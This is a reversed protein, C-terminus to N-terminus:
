ATSANDSLFSKIEEIYKRDNSLRPVKNQGGLKGKEKMWAHFTGPPIPEIQLRELALGKYRKAEYDSNINQLNRDLRDAFQEITDNDPRPEVFEILWQHGGKQGGEMYVPAATYEAVEVNMAESTKAFAEETNAIMLEEGFANIFQRTRGTIRIKYPNLSLFEVTDGIEYRWLGANTTIYLAYNTGKKVESLPVIDKEPDSSDIPLFEYFCGNDLFLLMGPNHAENQVAFFGESANYVEFYYFDDKPIFDEFQKRYPDFGVGGHMYVRANPWIETINDKGTRELLKRFLVVTWTPVGAFMTVNEDCTQEVMRELKVEFDSSLATEFDPTYFSRMFKPMQSLLIASVDGTQAQRNGAVYELSGGMILHKGAFIELGPVQDYLVSSAHWSGRLHGYRLNDPPVPIYKSKDSTTGSSKSFWRVRGPWLVDRAGQMMRNIDKRLGEYDTLPVVQRFDEYHEINDFGHRAGYETKQGREILTRFVESQVAHPAEKFRNVKRHHLGFIRRAIQDYFHRM